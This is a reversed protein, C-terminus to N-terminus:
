KSSIRRRPPLNLISISQRPAFFILAVSVALIHSQQYGLLTHVATAQFSPPSDTLQAKRQANLISKLSQIM